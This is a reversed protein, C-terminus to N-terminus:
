VAFLASKLYYRLVLSCCDNNFNYGL